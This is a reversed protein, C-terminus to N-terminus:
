CVSLSQSGPCNYSFFLTALNLGDTCAPMTLELKNQFVGSFYAGPTFYIGNVTCAVIIHSMYMCLLVILITKSQSWMAYVRFIM